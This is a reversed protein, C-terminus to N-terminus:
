ENGGTEVTEVAEGTEGDKKAKNVGEKRAIIKRYHEIKLDLIDFFESITPTNNLLQMADVVDTMDHYCDGGAKRIEPVTMKLQTKQHYEQERQNMLVRFENNHQELTDLLNSLGLINVEDMFNDRVESIFLMITASEDNYEEAAVNGYRKSVIYLKEAANRIIEDYHKRYDKIKKRFENYDFDRVKDAKAIMPTYISERIAKIAICAKAYLACFVAYLIALGLSSAGYGEILLKVETLFELWQENTLNGLKLSRTRKM